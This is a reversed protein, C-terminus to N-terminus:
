DSPSRLKPPSGPESLTELWSAISASSIGSTSEGSSSYGSHRAEDQRQRLSARPQPFGAEGGEHARAYPATRERPGGDEREVVCQWLRMQGPCTAPTWGAAAVVDDTGG